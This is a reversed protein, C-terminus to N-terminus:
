KGNKHGHAVRVRLFRCHHRQVLLRLGQRLEDEGVLRSLQL